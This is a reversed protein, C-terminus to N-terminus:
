LSTIIVAFLVIAATSLVFMVDKIVLRVNEKKLTLINNIVALNAIEALSTISPMLLAILVVKLKKLITNTLMAHIANAPTPTLSKTAKAPWVVMAQITLTLIPNSSMLALKALELSKNLTCSRVLVVSLVNVLRMTWTPMIKASADTKKRRTTPMKQAASVLLTTLVIINQSIIVSFANVMLLVIINTAMNVPKAAEQPLLITLFLCKYPM